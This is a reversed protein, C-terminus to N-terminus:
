FVNKFVKVLDRLPHRKIDAKKIKIGGDFVKRITYCLNKITERDKIIYDQAGKRLFERILHMDHNSTLVVIPINPDKEKIKEFTKMGNMGPLGYDLFILDPHQDLHAICEEGTKYNVLNCNIEQSLMYDLMVSYMDNDEVIFILNHKVQKM